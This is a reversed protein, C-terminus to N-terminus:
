APGATNRCARIPVRHRFGGVVGPQRCGAGGPPVNPASPMPQDAIQDVTGTAVRAMLRREAEVQQELLTAEVRERGSLPRTHVRLEALRAWRQEQDCDRVCARVEDLIDLDDLSHRDSVEAHNWPPSPTNVQQSRREPM